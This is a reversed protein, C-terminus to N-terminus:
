SGTGPVYCVAAEGAVCVHSRGDPSERPDPQENENIHHTLAYWKGGYNAQAQTSAGTVDPMVERVGDPRTREALVPFCDQNAGQSYCCSSQRHVVSFDGKPRYWTRYFEIVRAQEVSEGHMHEHAQAHRFWLILTLAIAGIVVWLLWRDNPEPDRM